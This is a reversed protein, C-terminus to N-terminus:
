THQRQHTLHAAPNCGSAKPNEIYNKYSVLEHDTKRLKLSEILSNVQSLNDVVARCGGIDQMRDLKMKEFRKLKLIISPTRKLRQAILPKTCVQKAYKRLRTQIVNLPLAHASRWNNLIDLAINKDESTEKKSILTLGAKSVRSKSYKPEEWLIKM